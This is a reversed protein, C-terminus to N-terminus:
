SKRQFTYKRLLAGTLGGFGGTLGGLVATLLVLVGAGVGGFLKGIQTSLLHANQVDIWAAIIGWALAVGALGAVFGPGPNIRSFFVAVCAIVSSCWWPCLWLVLASLLATVLITLVTKM